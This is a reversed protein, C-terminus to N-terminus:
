IEAFEGQDVIYPQQLGAGEVIAPQVLGVDQVVPVPEQLVVPEVVQQAVPQIVPQVVPIVPRPPPLIPTPLPQPMPSPIVPHSDDIVIPAVPTLTDPVVIPQFTESVPAALTPIRKACLICLALGALGALSALIISVVGAAGLKSGSSEYTRTYDIPTTTYVPSGNVITSPNSLDVELNNIKPNSDFRIYDTKRAGDIICKIENTYEEGSCIAEKGVNNVNIKVDDNLVNYPLPKQLIIPIVLTNGDEYIQGYRDATIKGAFSNRNQNVINKSSNIEYTNSGIKASSEEIKVRLIKRPIADEVTCHFKTNDTKKCNGKYTYSDDDNSLVVTINSDEISDSGERVLDFQLAENYDPGLLEINQGGNENAVDLVFNKSTIEKILIGFITFYTLTAFQKFSKM